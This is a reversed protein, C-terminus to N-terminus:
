PSATTQSKMQIIHWQSVDGNPQFDEKDAIQHVIQPNGHDADGGHTEVTTDELPMRQEEVDTEPDSLEESDSPEPRDPPKRSECARRDTRRPVYRNGVLFADIM